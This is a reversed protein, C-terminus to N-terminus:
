MRVQLLYMTLVVSVSITLGVMVVSSGYLNRLLTIRRLLYKQLQQADMQQQRKLNQLLLKQLQHTQRLIMRQRLTSLQQQRLTDTAKDSAAMEEIKAIAQDRLVKQGLYMGFGHEANDEFLSNAWAPGKLTDKNVTYPSTAAPGGWISSCGTANSIYMQEGFLQTILDQM